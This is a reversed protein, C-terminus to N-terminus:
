EEYPIETASFEDVMTQQRQNSSLDFLEDVLSVHGDTSSVFIDGTSACFYVISREMRLPLVERAVTVGLKNTIEVTPLIYNTCCNLRVLM